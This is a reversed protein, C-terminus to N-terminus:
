ASGAPTVTVLHNYALQARVALEEMREISVEHRQMALAEEETSGVGAPSTWFAWPGMAAISLREESAELM